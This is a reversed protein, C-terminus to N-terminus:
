ILKQQMADYREQIEMAKEFRKREKKERRKEKENLIKSQASINHSTKSSQRANVIKEQRKQLRESVKKERETPEYNPLDIILIGNLHDHEHQVISADHYNVLMSKMDTKDIMPYDYNKTIKVIVDADIKVQLHRSVVRSVGPLSLCSERSATMGDSKESLSPNVFGFTGTSLNAIFIRKFIGIQPAAMGAANPMDMAAWLNSVDSMYSDNEIDVSESVKRLSELDFILEM